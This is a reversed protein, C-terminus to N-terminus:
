QPQWIVKGKCNAIQVHPSVELLSLRVDSRCHRAVPSTWLKNSGNRVELSGRGKENFYAACAGASCDQGPTATNWLASCNTADKPCDSGPPGRYYVLNGDDQMCFQYTKTQDVYLCQNQRLLPSAGELTLTPTITGAWIGQLWGYAQRLNAFHPQKVAVADPPLDVLIFSSDILDLGYLGNAVVENAYETMDDDWADAAWMQISYNKTKMYAVLYALEELAPLGPFELQMAHQAATDVLFLWDPMQKISYPAAVGLSTTATHWDTPLMQAGSVYLMLQPAGGNPYYKALLAEYHAVQWTLFNRKTNQYWILADNWLEPSGLGPNPPRVVSWSTYKTRWATNAAAITGYHEHMKASFDAQAHVDYWWFNM